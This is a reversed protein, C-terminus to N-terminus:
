PAIQVGYFEAVYQYMVGTGKSTRYDVRTSSIVLLFDLRSSFFFFLPVYSLHGTVIEYRTLSEQRASSCM